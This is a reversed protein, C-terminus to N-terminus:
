SQDQLIDHIFHASKSNLEAVRAIRRTFSLNKKKMKQKITQEHTEYRARLILLPQLLVPGAAGM